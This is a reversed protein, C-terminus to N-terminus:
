ETYRRLLPAVRVRAQFTVHSVVGVHVLENTQCIQLGHVSMEDDFIQRLAFAQSLDIRQRHRLHRDQDTYRSAFRVPLKSFRSKEVGV